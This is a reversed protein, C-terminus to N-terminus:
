STECAKEVKIKLKKLSAQLEIEHPSLVKKKKAPKSTVRLPKGAKLKDLISVTPERTEPEPASCKSEGTVKSLCEPEKVRVKGKGDFHVFYWGMGTVIKVIVGTDGDEVSGAMPIRIPKGNYIVRDNVVLETSSSPAHAGM